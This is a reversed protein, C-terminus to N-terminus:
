HEVGFLSLSLYAFTVKERKAHFSCVDFEQQIHILVALKHCTDDKDQYYAFIDQLVDQAYDHSKLSTVLMNVGEAAMEQLYSKRYSVDLLANIAAWHTDKDASALKFKGSRQIAIIGFIKGFLM